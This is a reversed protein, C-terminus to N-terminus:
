PKRTNIDFYHQLGRTLMKEQYDRISAGGTQIIDNLSSIAMFGSGHILVKYIDGISPDKITIGYFIDGSENSIPKAHGAKILSNIDENTMNQIEELSGIVTPTAELGEKTYDKLFNTTARYSANFADVNDIGKISKIGESTKLVIGEDSSVVIQSNEILENAKNQSVSKSDGRNFIGINNKDSLGTLSRKVAEDLKKEETPAYQLDGIFIQEKSRADDYMIGKDINSKVDLGLYSYQTDLDEYKKSLESTERELQKQKAALQRGRVERFQKGTVHGYVKKDDIKSIEDILSKIEEQLSLISDTTITQNGSNDTIFRLNKNFSLDKEAQKGLKKDTTISGITITNLGSSNGRGSGNDNSDSPAKWNKNSVRDIDEKYSAGAFIGNLIAADVKDQGSKKLSYYNSQKRQKEVIDFLAKGEESKIYTPDNLYLNLEDIADQTIGRKTIFQYYQNGLISTPSTIADVFRNSAGSAEKVSKNYVDDLNVSIGSPTNGYMYDRISDGIGEIYIEPHERKLKTLYKQDEQYAKYAENIPNLDKTYRAKLSALQKKTDSNYGQTYFSNLVKQMDTNFTNYVGRLEEDEESQTLKSGIDNAMIDLNSLETELSDYAEKYALIPALMEQYSFPKFQATKTAFYNAM